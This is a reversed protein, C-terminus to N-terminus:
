PIRTFAQPKQPRTHVPFAAQVHGFCDSLTTRRFHRSIPFRRRKDSLTRLPADSLPRQRPVEIERPDKSLLLSRELTNELERVNGSWDYSTMTLVSQEFLLPKQTLGYKGVLRSLFLKSLPAIDARRERLPPVEVLSM